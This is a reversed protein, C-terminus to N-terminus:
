KGGFFWYRPKEEKKEESWYISYDFGYELRCNMEVRYGMDKLKDATGRELSTITLYEKGKSAEAKILDSVTKLEREIVKAKGEESLKRADEVSIM